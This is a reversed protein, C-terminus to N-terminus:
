IKLDFFEFLYRFESPLKLYDIEKDYFINLEKQKHHIGENQMTYVRFTHYIKTSKDYILFYTGEKISSSEESSAQELLKQKTIKSILTNPYQKQNEFFNDICLCKPDRYLNILRYNGYSLVHHFDRRRIFRGNWSATTKLQGLIPMSRELMKEEKYKKKDETYLVRMTSSPCNHNLFHYVEYRKNNKIFDRHTNILDDIFDNQITKLEENMKKSTDFHVFKKLIVEKMLVSSRNIFFSELEYQSMYIAFIIIFMISIPILIKYGFKSFFYKCSQAAIIMFSASDM